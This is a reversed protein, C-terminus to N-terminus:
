NLFKTNKFIIFLKDVDLRRNVNGYVLHAHVNICKGNTMSMSRPPPASFTKTANMKTSTRRLQISTLDQISITALPQPIKSNEIETTNGTAQNSRSRQLPSLPPPPPGTSSGKAEVNRREETENTREPEESQETDRGQIDLNDVSRHVHNYKCMTIYAPPKWM